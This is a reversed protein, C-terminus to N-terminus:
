GVKQFIRLAERTGREYADILKDYTANAADDIQRRAPDADFWAITRRIGQTFPVTACYDPVFRKIKTNDFVVSAAKDGLLGGRMEPVCAALFDSPIHVLEAEVGAAEATLRYWQDWTMVEDSTIHFAHGIAQERALLGVLGKAFDTNHTIVWLSSGDGPVIVKKGKRMRDVATYSRTWSNVALTIQTEGYTLSPRIITVPFGEERYARLLREECAIKQQSYSWYPNALPTSETILYHGVPKQYASASSIFVFQRTRGRFLELDREIQHPEFAIWDVVADFSEGDLARLVAAPDEIDATVVRAGAPFRPTRQGRNLLTLEIGRDLALQSCATSIIGTGGIFLARM